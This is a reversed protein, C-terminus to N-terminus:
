KTPLNGANNRVRLYKEWLDPRRLRTIDESQCKRWRAINEHHGSVLVDPVKQGHWDQPRTYHPHELLGEQLSDQLLSERDGVVEPLWRVCAELLALAAVEGGCLVYDGISIEELNWKDIVRQDIGEYRGCVLTVGPSKSLDQVKKQDLLAGRPSLYVLRNHQFQQSAKELAGDLVDPRMLMGAGGGFPTDDVTQHKDFSFDRINVTTLSWVNKELAKGALSVGLPGPFVEPFLTLVCAQWMDSVQSSVNAM